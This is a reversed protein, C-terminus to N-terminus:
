PRRAPPYLRALARPSVGLWYLVQLVTWHLFTLAFSRNEFRRSSTIVPGPLRVFCGTRKLRRVLDLDEFLLFPRFGGIREYADRRVFIASDGYYLGLWGLYPYLWGLFRAAYRTGDFRVTFNGGVIEQNELAQLIQPLADAPPRTDAHLFWFADGRAIRAGAHMQIGRGRESVLVRAGRERAIAATADESGGDVVIIEIPGPMKTLADLTPGIVSAENLTPIIISLTDIGM